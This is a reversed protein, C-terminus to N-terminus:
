DNVSSENKATNKTCCIKGIALRSELESSASLRWIFEKCDHVKWMVVGSGAQASFLPM